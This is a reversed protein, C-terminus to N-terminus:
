GLLIINQSPCILSKILVMLLSKMSNAEFLIPNVKLTEAVLREDDGQEIMKFLKRVRSKKCLFDFYFDADEIHGTMLSVTMMPVIMLDEEHYEMQECEFTKLRIM